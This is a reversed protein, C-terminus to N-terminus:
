SETDQTTLLKGKLWYGGRRQCEPLCSLTCWWGQIIGPLDVLCEGVLAALMEPVQADSLLTEPAFPQVFGFATDASGQAKHVLAHM